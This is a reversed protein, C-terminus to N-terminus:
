QELLSLVPVRWHGLSPLTPKAPKKLVELDQNNPNAESEADALLAADLDHIKADGLALWTTDIASKVCDILKSVVDELTHATSLLSSEQEDLIERSLTTSLRILPRNTAATNAVLTALRGNEAVLRTLSGLLYSEEFISGKAGSAAKRM